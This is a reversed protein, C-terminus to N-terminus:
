REQGIVKKLYVQTVAYLILTAAVFGPALVYWNSQFVKFWEQWGGETIIERQPSQRLFELRYDSPDFPSPNETNRRILVTDGEIQSFLFDRQMVSQVQQLGTDTQGTLAVVVRESNWPSLISRILGEADPATQTQNGAWQRTLQGQLAFGQSQFVEPLPFRAQTGIGILHRDRQIEKPLQTKRYVQFQIADARTLRGLRESTELLLDLDKQNPQEPLVIALKSMDQPAAFPYGSQMLKLDPLRTVNERRLDFSTDSHITGWLQQDTVRSCSRRERPDLRFNVQMKSTPKVSGEPLDIKLIQRNAGDVSTLRDGGLPVGDLQVEVQSTLPNVQPGYSYVLTMSSGTLIQEDPLARFDFELAPAHSGRVTVDGYPQDNYTRLDSLKFQEQTPLYGQWERLPPATISQTEEILMVSGTAIARDPRQVLAQVAKAVGVDGNGTAVLVPVRDSDTTTLMLVGVDPPLVKGQADRLQNQQIALPLDLDAIAPQSEPTGIVILRENKKIQDIAEITRSDVERYRAYQGIATQLRATPTLWSEDITRPLLFAIQPADLSLVDLFPYPYRSFNLPVSQPDVAFVLKSDPLIETWLSPDYPDQTCTPSNNQLAAITVENYDQLLSVPVNFLSTTIKNEPQNLPVSGVSTGNVLVTLNSRTAYLAPSHRYRLQLKVSKTEWDRPRTFRLRAESYISELRLRNGVIPSRSFELVYESLDAPAVIPDPANKPLAFASSKVPQSAPANGSPAPSKTETATATLSLVSLTLSCSFLGVYLLSRRWFRKLFHKPLHIFSHSRHHASSASSACSEICNGQHPLRHRFDRM